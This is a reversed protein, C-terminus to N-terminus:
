LLRVWVLHLLFGTSASGASQVLMHFRLDEDPIEFYNLDRAKSVRISNIGDAAGLTIEHNVTYIKGDSSWAGEESVVKQTYPIRLGYSIWPDVSTDMERNFYVKFEHEGVGIPDMLHFDDYANIGNVEVKWVMGPAEEYPVLRPNSYQWVGSGGDFEDHNLEELKAISHAGIYPNGFEQFGSAELGMLVQSSYDGVWNTGIRYSNVINNKGNINWNYNIGYADSSYATWEWFNNFRSNFISSDWNYGYSIPEDPNYPTSVYIDSVPDFSFYNFWNAFNMLNSRLIITNGGNLQMDWNYSNFVQSKNIVLNTPSIHDFYLLECGGDKLVGENMIIEYFDEM